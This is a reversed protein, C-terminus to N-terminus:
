MDTYYKQRLTYCVVLYSFTTTLNQLEPGNFWLVTNTFNPDHAIFSTLVFTSDYFFILRAVLVRTYVLFGVM